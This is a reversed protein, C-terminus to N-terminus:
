EHIDEISVGNETVDIRVLTKVDIGMERLRSVGDGREIIVISDTVIAGIGELADMLAM